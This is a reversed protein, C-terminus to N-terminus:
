EGAVEKFCALLKRGVDADVPLEAVNKEGDSIAILAAVIKKEEEDDLVEENLYKLHYADWAATIGIWAMAEAEPESDRMLDIELEELTMDLYPGIVDYVVEMQESVEPSLAAHGTGPPTVESRDDASDEHM